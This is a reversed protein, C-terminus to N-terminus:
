SRRGARGAEVSRRSRARARPRRRPDRRQPSQRTARRRARARAPRARAARRRALDRDGDLFRQVADALARATPGPAAISRRTAAVCIADLEPPDDREPARASPRADVGALASAIRAQGRPHLPEGALIEFLIAASRTSTPAATSTPTAASRSPRWTARRASRDRRGRDDRARRQRSRRRRASEDDEAIVRAVGWDLM